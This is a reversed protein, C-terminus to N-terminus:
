AILNESGKKDIHEIIYLVLRYLFIAMIVTYVTEPLIIRRLYYFINLRGRILFGFVYMYFGYFVDAAAIMLIPFTIDEKYFIRNTIGTLYGALLYGLAYMGIYPGFTIDLILGSVFGVLCGELSGNVIAVSATLIMLLNPVIDALRFYDFFSCQLLFFVIILGAYTLVKKM